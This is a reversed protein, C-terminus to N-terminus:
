ESVAGLKTLHPQDKLRIRRLLPLVITNMVRLFEATAREDRRIAAFVLTLQGPRAASVGTSLYLDWAMKIWVFDEVAFPVDLYLGTAADPPLDNMEVPDSSDIRLREKARLRALEDLMTEFTDAHEVLKTLSARMEHVSPPPDGHQGRDLVKALRTAMASRQEVSGYACCRRCGSSSLPMVCTCRDHCPTTYLCPCAKDLRLARVIDSCACVGTPDREDHIACRLTM